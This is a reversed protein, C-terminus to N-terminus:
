PRSEKRQKILQTGKFDFRIGLCSVGDAHLRLPGPKVTEAPEKEPITIGKLKLSHVQAGTDPRFVFFRV